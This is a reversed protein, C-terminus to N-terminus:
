SHGFLSKLFSAGALNHRQEASNLLLGRNKSIIGVPSSHGVLLQKNLSEQNLEFKCHRMFSFACLTKTGNQYDLKIFVGFHMQLM